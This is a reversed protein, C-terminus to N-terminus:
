EAVISYLHKEGRLLMQNGVIAPSADIGEDLKNTALVEFETGHKVIVTTGNRGTYYIRNGAGVPSAYLVDLGPLRKNTFYLKGTVADWCSLIASQSKTTYLLDARPRLHTM